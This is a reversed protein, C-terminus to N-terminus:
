LSEATVTIPTNAPVHPDNDDSCNHEILDDMQAIASNRQNKAAGRGEQRNM